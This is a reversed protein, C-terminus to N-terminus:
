RKWKQLNVDETDCIFHNSSGPDWNLNVGSNLNKTLVGNVVKWCDLRLEPVRFLLPFITLCLLFIDQPYNILFSFSLFFCFHFSSLSLFSSLFTLFSFFLSLCFARYNTSLIYCLLSTATWVLCFSVFYLLYNNKHGLKSIIDVKLIHFSKIGSVLIKSCVNHKINYM